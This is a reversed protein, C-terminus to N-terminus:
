PTPISPSPVTSITGVTVRGTAEGNSGPPTKVPLAITPEYEAIKIRGSMPMTVQVTRNVADSAPNGDVATNIALPTTWASGNLFSAKASARGYPGAGVIHISIRVPVRFVENTECSDDAVLWVRISAAASHPTGDPPYHVSNCSGGSYNDTKIRIWSKAFNGSEYVSGNGALIPQSWTGSTPWWSWTVGEVFEFEVSALGIPDFSDITTNKAFAYINIGGEEAIADRSVWRGLETHLYRQGSIVRHGLPYANKRKCAASRDTTRYSEKLYM